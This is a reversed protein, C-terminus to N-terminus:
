ITQWIGTDRWFRGYRHREQEFLEAYRSVEDDSLIQGLEVYGNSKFFDYDEQKM